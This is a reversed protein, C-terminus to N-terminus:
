TEMERRSDEFAWVGGKLIEREEGKVSLGEVDDILV